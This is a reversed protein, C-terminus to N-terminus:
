TNICLYYEVILTLNGEYIGFNNGSMEEGIKFIYRYFITRSIAKAKEFPKEIKSNLGNPLWYNLIMFKTLFYVCKFIANDSGDRTTNGNSHHLLSQVSSM